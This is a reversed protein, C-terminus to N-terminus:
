DTKLNLFFDVDSVDNTWELDPEKFTDPKLIKGIGNDSLFTIYGLNKVPQINHREHYKNIVEKHMYDIQEPSFDKEIISKSFNSKRVEIIAKEMVTLNKNKYLYEESNSEYLYDATKEDVFNVLAYLQPLIKDKDKLERLNKLLAVFNDENVIPLKEKFQLNSYTQAYEIPNLSLLASAFSSTVFVDAMGDIFEQRSKLDIGKKLTENVEEIIFDYQNKIKDENMFDIFFRSTINFLAVQQAEYIFSEIRM